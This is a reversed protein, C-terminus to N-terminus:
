GEPLEHIMCDFGEDNLRAIDENLVKLSDTAGYFRYEANPDNAPFYYLNYM